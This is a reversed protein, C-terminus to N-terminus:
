ALLELPAFEAGLVQAPDIGFAHRIVAGYVSRFDTTHVLDGGDLETLSPHRGYLGGKVAHGAVFMPGATGHDTGRSGNEAVRRGFESFVVVTADRGAASAALDNLFATLGRDLRGMLTDHRRREDNHTDFGGLEVSLVRSGLPSNVIAAATRLADAFPDGPYEVSPRYAAAASRIAASSARADGLVGRLFELSASAEEGAGSDDDYGAVDAENSAWRYGAPTSFSVAPHKSSNLAYPPTAGVHVVRNPDVDDGFVAESLKGIWGEGSARGRLDGTHWIELSKFHSRNPQPYGVGEVIALRGADFLGRLGTLNPHLGRYDDLRLVQETDVRISPRARHYADDAWPVVTSLGDNGGSLQVLVLTREGAAPLAAGLRVGGFSVWGLTALGSALFSRRDLRLRADRPDTNSPM